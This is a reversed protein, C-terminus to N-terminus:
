QLEECQLLKSRLVERDKIIAAWGEPTTAKYNICKSIPRITVEETIPDYCVCTGAFESDDDIVDGIICDLVAPLPYQPRYDVCSSMGMLSILSLLVILNNIISVMCQKWYQREKKM